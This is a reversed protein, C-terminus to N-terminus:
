ATARVTVRGSPAIVAVIRSIAAVPSRVRRIRQRRVRAPLVLVRPQEGRVNLVIVSEISRNWRSAACRSRSDDSPRSDVTM